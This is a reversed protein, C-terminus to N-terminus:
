CSYLFPGFYKMRKTLKLYRIASIFLGVVISHIIVGVVKGNLYGEAILSFGYGAGQEAHKPNLRWVFWEGLTQIREGRVQTPILSKIATLYNSAYQLPVESNDVWKMVVGANEIVRPELATFLQAAWNSPFDGSIFYTELINLAHMALWGAIFLTFLFRWNLLRGKWRIRDAYAGASFFIIAIGRSAFVIPCM